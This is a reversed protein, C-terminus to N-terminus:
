EGGECPDGSRKSKSADDADKGDGSTSEKMDSSKKEEAAPPAGANKVPAKKSACATVLLLSALLIRM